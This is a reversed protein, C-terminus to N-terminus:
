GLLLIPRIDLNRVRFISWFGGGGILIDWDDNWKVQHLPGFVRAEVLAGVIASVGVVLIFGIPTEMITGLRETEGLHHGM